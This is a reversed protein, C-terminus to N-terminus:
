SATVPPSEPRRLLEDHLYGGGKKAMLPEALKAMRLLSHVWIELTSRQAAGVCRTYDIPYQRIPLLLM